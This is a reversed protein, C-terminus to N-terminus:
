DIVIIDNSNHIPELIGTSKEMEKQLEFVKLLKWKQQENQEKLHDIQSLYMLNKEQITKIIKSKEASEQVVTDHSQQLSKNESEVKKIDSNIKLIVEDLNNKNSQKEKEFNDKTQIFLLKEEHFTMMDTTLKKEKDILLCKEKRLREKNEVNQIIENTFKEQEERLLDREHQVLSEAQRKKALQDLLHKELENKDCIDNQHWVIQQRLEDTEQVSKKWECRLKENRIKLMDMEQLLLEKEKIIHNLGQKYIMEGQGRRERIEKELKQTLVCKEAQLKDVTAKLDKKEKEQGRRDRIEKDLKQMLVSKEAQLKDVRSKLDKKDNELDTLYQKFSKEYFRNKKPM